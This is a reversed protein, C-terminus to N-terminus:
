GHKFFKMEAIKFPENLFGWSVLAPDSIDKRAWFKKEELIERFSHSFIELFRWAKTEFNSSLDGIM